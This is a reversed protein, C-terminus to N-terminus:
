AVKGMEAGEGRERLRALLWRATRLLRGDYHRRGVLQVGVPMGHPGSLLPLTLAPVGCYTWITSFAPDGTAEGVPAEGPAAPTLIADYRDFILDLGANLPAIMDLAALYDVARIARGEEVMGRLRDSLLSADRDYYRAYNHALEAMNVTRHWAHAHTFAEPLEIEDIPEGLASILESFGERVEAEAKEWVPTKVFAFSPKVPPRSTALALLDPKAAITMGSDRDDFGALAEAILAADEVSRAFVGVQDLTASQPLIGRRSILGRTPKFGVVGCFSAPRIVSGNTQTGVAIPAMGAAVAAASGSSSGGPTRSADHPNRTKGPTFVALETTVTKGLIIGGAERLREVVAADARPRRGADFVTGNETPLDRTDIIDKLGVPIGHLPGLTRGTGRYRDAAEAQRMLYAPDLHEFAKVDPEREAIRALFAEVVDVAKVAGRKLEERLAVAALEALDERPV